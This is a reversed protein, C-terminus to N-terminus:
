EWSSSLGRRKLPANPKGAAHALEGDRHQRHFAAFWAGLQPKEFADVLLCTGWESGHEPWIGVLSVTIMEM